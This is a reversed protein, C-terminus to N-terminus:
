GRKHGERVRQRHEAYQVTEFVVVSAVAATVIALAALAPVRAAVLTLAGVAAAAVLRDVQLHHTLRWKFAVHALLYLTVGGFLAYLGAGALPDSLDHAEADGVYELVKKLGLSLLIVGAVLPLHLFSYADRGLRARTEEPEAALVQEGQLASIDFYTWWLGASLALGLAGGLVIPWSVPLEVVGVGIAVISEGLSV